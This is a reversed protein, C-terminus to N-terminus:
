IEIKENKFRRLGKKKASQCTKERSCKKEKKESNNKTNEGKKTHPGLFPYCCYQDKIVFNKLM